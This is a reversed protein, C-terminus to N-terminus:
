KYIKQLEKNYFSGYVEEGELDKIKYLKFPKKNIKEYIQFIEDSWNKNSSKEFQKKLVSIRVEDGVNLESQKVEIIDKFLNKFVKKENGITVDIPAFKTRSHITKNYTNIIRDLVDYYKFTSNATFYRGFKERLTRIFREAISSKVENRSIIHKINESKMFKQFPAGTFETGADTFLYKCKRESTNIIDKYADVVTSPRKNMLPKVSVFKSLVDILIFIFKFHKNYKSISSVDMLDAQHWDDIHKSIMRNRKFKKLRYKHKSYAEVTSLYKIIDIKKISSDKAKAADYLKLVSSYGSPSDINFYLSNLLEKRNM